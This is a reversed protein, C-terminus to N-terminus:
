RTAMRELDALLSRALDRRDGPMAILHQREFETLIRAKAICDAMTEAPTATLKIEIEIQRDGIRDVEDDTVGRQKGIRLWEDALAICHGPQPTALTKRTM